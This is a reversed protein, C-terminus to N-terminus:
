FPGFDPAILRNETDLRDIDAVEDDTLEVQLSEFNSEIHAKTAAKPIAVIQKQRLWALIVQAPDASRKQAIQQIRDLRLDEGRGLPSYGTIQLDERRCFDQMAQQRLSPHMEVQNVAVNEDLTLTEELLSITFNSVGYSRVKGAKKTDKLAGLTEELPVSENPWHLLLLDVYDTDLDALSEGLQAKLRSESFHDYWIKTTLFVDARKVNSEAIAQSVEDHNGYAYATDIHRFGVDLAHKIAQYGEEGTLQWTGLGLAPIDVDDTLSFTPTQM